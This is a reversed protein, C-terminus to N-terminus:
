RKSYRVPTTGMIEKFKRSFYSSNEFGAAMAADIVRINGKALLETAKKRNEPYPNKSDITHNKLWSIKDGLLQKGSEILYKKSDTKKDIGSFTLGDVQYNGTRKPNDNFGVWKVPEDRLKIKLYYNKNTNAYGEVGNAV